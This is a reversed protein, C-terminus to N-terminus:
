GNIISDFDIEEFYLEEDYEYCAYDWCYPKILKSEVKIVAYRDEYLHHELEYELGDFADDYESEKAVTLRELVEAGYTGDDNKYQHIIFYAIANGVIEDSVKDGGM